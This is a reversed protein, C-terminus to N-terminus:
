KAAVTACGLIVDIRGQADGKISTCSAGCLLIKTPVGGEAPDVDYYWGGTTPNCNAASEVYPITTSAGNGATYQVNLKGFDPTGGDPQPIAYDCPLSAGRIANLATVFQQEVNSSTTNIIFGQGSGGSAAIQDVAATGSALDNPTFVGIVFTKISPAGALGAAAIQAVGTVTSPTCEDPIGDTALVAVVTHGANANTFSVAEDIAGQLAASTPTNGQPQRGALSSTIASASGPLTAIPVAPTAYDAPTCSDGAVCFSSTIAQCTGLAFGNADNGCAQGPLCLVDSDNQCEGIAVCTAGKACPTTADCPIVAGANPGGGPKLCISLLCPGAGNCQTSSSCSAPVGAKPVAFYQVGVGIGTSAPDAVFASMAAVIAQWKSQGAAVLDDMSGSNDMMFYLDLPLQKAKESSTACGVFADGLGGEGFSGVDDGGSSSAQGDGGGSSSGGDDGGVVNGAGSGGCSAAVVTAIAAAVGLAGRGKPRAM